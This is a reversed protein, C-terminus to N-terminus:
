RALVIEDADHGQCDCPHPILDSPQQVNIHLIAESTDLLKRVKLRITYLGLVDPTFYVKTPRDIIKGVVNISGPPVADLYWTQTNADTSDISDLTYTVKLESIFWEQTGTSCLRLGSAGTACMKALPAANVNGYIGIMILYISVLLVAYFIRKMARM